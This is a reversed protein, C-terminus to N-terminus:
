APECRPLSRLGHSGAQLEHLAHAGPRHTLFLTFLLWWGPRDARRHTSLGRLGLWTFLLTAFTRVPFPVPGFKLTQRIGNAWQWDYYQIYNLFQLGLMTLSRGPNDPGHLITPDDWPTRVPYQQRRIVALLANWNDPQAENILPHQGARIYLFLYSTVGIASVILAVVAFPILRARVAFGFAVLYCLGGLLTLATNGLGGGILLAWAGAVVALQAWEVAREDADARPEHRQVSWLFAVVAPVALLALLHNGISAGALDLILLLTHSARPTGRQGRWVLCLWTIAAITFTAIAYVETENSNQWVTFTFSAIITAAFAGGIRLRAPVPGEGPFARALQDHVVLFFCGAGCASLLASLLNLRAAYEGVPVLVGWVHAILTFLPTGPPHPIGLTHAAAIFEGADWFTVTPALSVAYGALVLAVALLALRYPPRPLM